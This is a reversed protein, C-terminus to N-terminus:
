TDRLDQTLFLIAWLNRRKIGAIIKKHVHKNKGWLM